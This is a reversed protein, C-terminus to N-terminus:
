PNERDIPSIAKIVSNMEALEELKHIAFLVAGYPKGKISPLIKKFLLHAFENISKETYGEPVILIRDM